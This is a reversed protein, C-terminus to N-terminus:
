IEDILGRITSVENLRHYIEERRDREDQKTSSFELLLNGTREQLFRHFLLFDDSTILERLRKKENESFTEPM